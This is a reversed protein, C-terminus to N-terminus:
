DRASAFHLYRSLIESQHFILVLWAASPGKARTTGEGRREVQETVFPGEQDHAAEEGSGAAEAIKEVGGFADGRVDQGAAELPELSLADELFTLVLANGAVLQGALARLQQGGKLRHRTPAMGVDRAAPLWGVVEHRGFRRVM